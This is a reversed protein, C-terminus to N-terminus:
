SPAADRCDNDRPHHTPTSPPTVWSLAKPMFSHDGIGRSDQHVARGHCQQPLAAARCQQPVARNGRFVFDIHSYHSRSYQYLIVKPVWIHTRLGFIDCAFIFIIIFLTFTIHFHSNGARVKCSRLHQTPPVEELPPGFM